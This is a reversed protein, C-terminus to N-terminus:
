QTVEAPRFFPLAFGHEHPQFDVTVVLGEVLEDIDCDAIGALMFYEEDLEVIGCAYPVGFQPAQPRTIVVWSYLRGRGASRAWRLEPSGCRRCGPTPEFNAAGCDTCAQYRLEGARCGDWFPQTLPSPIPAPGDSPLRNLRSSTGAAQGGRWANM